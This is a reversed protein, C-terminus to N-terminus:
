GPMGDLVKKLTDPRNTIIAFIDMRALRRMSRVFDVTWAQARIGNKRLERINFETLFPFMPNVFEVGNRRAYMGAGIQWCNTLFSCPIEPCLKKCLIMSHHNFSSFVVRGVLDYRRVLGIVKEEMGEYRVVSNKLEINTFIDKDRIYEFYEELTPIRNMGYETSFGNSADLEKLEKLTLSRVRGARNTTRKTTEDHIVVPVGDKTLQVDLEIGDCGAEVAKEFALMTNEPYKSSFGRHAINKTVM